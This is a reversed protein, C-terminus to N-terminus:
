SVSRKRQKRNDVIDADGTTGVTEVVLINANVRVVRIPMGSRVMEANKEIADFERLHNRFNITVRGTGDKPITLYVTGTSGVADATKLNGISQMRGAFQFLKGIVWVAALGAAVAGGLSIAAGVKSQRYLSLGVLGFMLFFAALGQMSLYTFGADSDVHDPHIDIHSGADAAVDADLGAGIFQIILRIIVFSGGIVACVIFVIELGNFNSFAREM